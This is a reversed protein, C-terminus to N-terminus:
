SCSRTESIRTDTCGRETTITDGPTTVEECDTYEGNTTDIVSSPDKTIDTADQYWKEDAVNPRGGLDYIVKAGENTTAEISANTAMSHPNSGYQGNDPQGPVYPPVMDPTSVTFSAETDSQLDKVWDETENSAFSQLSALPLLSAIILKM